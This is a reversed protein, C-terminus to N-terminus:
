GLIGLIHPPPQQLQHFGVAGEIGSQSQHYHAVAAAHPGARRIAPRAIHDGQGGVGLVPTLADLKAVHLIRAVGSAFERGGLDEGPRHVQGPHFRRLGRPRSSTTRSLSCPSTASHVDALMKAEVPPWTHVGGTLAPQRGPMVRSTSSPSIWTGPMRM